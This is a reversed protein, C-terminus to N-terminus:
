KHTHALESHALEVHGLLHNIFQQARRGTFGGYWMGWKYAEKALDEESLTIEPYRQAIGKVIGLYEQQTPKMFSITVGFRNVLSMKEEATDSHHIDNENVIDKRDTWTEKILHRRNSTAYILINDPTIELGGEIVAKLYKYEIEFDEFSLDDMYIIFRYNRNKIMTIIASLDKFQHKYLEIIRLGSAHYENLLAKICTSKGTGSDGHLLLNNAKHGAIFAETNDVLMKKQFEYGVLDSLYVEVTNTIPELELESESGSLRFVKNLGFKGVGHVRYFDTVIAFIEFEDQAMDILLSLARVKESVSTNYTKRDKEIARYNSIISFCNIQLAAEIVSFDYDFLEKFIKFDHTALLNVSGDRVGIKECALSFPNETTALLFALYNHWLNQDFGYLTAIGLLAHIQDYIAATLEERNYDGRDFQKCIESLQFLIGDKEVNRYVVLKAIKSYMMWDEQLGTSGTM